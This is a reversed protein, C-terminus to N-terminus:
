QGTLLGPIPEIDIRKHEVDIAKIFAEVAPLYIEGAKSEVVYIDQPGQTIVDKVIGVLEGEVTWVECGVIDHIYFVGPPLSFLEEERICLEKGALEEAQERTQVEYFKIIWLGRYFKSRKITLKRVAEGELITLVGGEAFREPFDTLPLVKVEGKVGHAKLVKGVVCYSTEM